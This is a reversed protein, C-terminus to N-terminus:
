LKAIFTTAAHLVENVFNATGVPNRFILYAIIGIVLWRKWDKV